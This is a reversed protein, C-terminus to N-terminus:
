IKPHDTFCLAMMLRLTELLMISHLPFSTNTGCSPYRDLPFGGRHDGLSAEKHSGELFRMTGQEPKLDDLAIWITVLGARDVKYASGDQHFGIEKSGTDQSGMKCFLLHGLARIPIVTDTLRRRGILKSAARGMAESLVLEHFPPSTIQLAQFAGNDWTFWCDELTGRGTRCVNRARSLIDNAKELMEESDVRSIFGPLRTWGSEHHASVEGDTVGRAAVIRNPHSM